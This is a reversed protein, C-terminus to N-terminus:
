SMKEAILSNPNFKKGDAIGSFYLSSDWGDTDIRHKSYFNSKRLKGSDQKLAESAVPVLGYEQRMEESQRNFMMKLGDCFGYAYSNCLDRIDGRLYSDLDKKIRKFENHIFGVAYEFVELCIHVDDDFGVFHIKHTKKNWEKETRASCCYNNAMVAALKMLWSDRISTCTYRTDLRVLDDKDPILIDTDTLKHEAMLKRAKLLAAKAEEENPNDALALLKRIKDRYDM